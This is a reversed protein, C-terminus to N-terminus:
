AFPGAVDSAAEAAPARVAPTEQGTGPDALARRALFQLRLLHTLGLGTTGSLELPTAAVLDALSEVGAEALRAVAPADLGDVANPALAPGRAVPQELEAPRSEHPPRSAAREPAPRPILLERAPRELEPEAHREAADPPEGTEVSDVQERSVAPIATVGRLRAAAFPPREGSEDSGPEPSPRPEARPHKTAARSAPPKPPASPRPSEELGGGLRERLHGAEIQFRHAHRADTELVRELEPLEVAEIEALTDWGATRLRQLTDPGDAHLNCLLALTDM